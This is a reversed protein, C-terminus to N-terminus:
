VDGVLAALETIAAPDNVADPSIVEAPRHGRLMQKIPNSAVLQIADPSAAGSSVPLSVKADQEGGADQQPQPQKGGRHQCRAAGLLPATSLRVATADTVARIM